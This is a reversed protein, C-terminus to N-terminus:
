FFSEEITIIDPANLNNAIADAIAAFRAAGDGPDLNEVNFTAIALQNSNPILTTEGVLGGSVATLPQTILLKFNGFSYDM